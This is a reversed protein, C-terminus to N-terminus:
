LIEENMLMQLDKWAQAKLVPRALLTRPHFTAVAPLKAEKHNFYHLNGRATMLEAGLLAGCAASGLILVAKPRVLQMQHLMFSKLEQKAGDPLEGAAPRTTALATLYCDQRDRGMARIMQTLLQGALGHGLEGAALEENDPLDSIIMLASGAQGAPRASAGGFQNGPLAAGSAIADILEALSGPLPFAERTQPVAAAPQQPGPRALMNPLPACSAAPPSKASPAAGFAADDLWGATEEKVLYDVGAMKWYQLFAAITESAATNKQNM